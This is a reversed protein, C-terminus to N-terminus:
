KGAFAGYGRGVGLTYQPNDVYKATPIIEWVSVKSTFFPIFMALVNM